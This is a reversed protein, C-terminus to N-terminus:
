GEHRFRLISVGKFEAGTSQTDKPKSKPQQELEDNFKAFPSKILAPRVGTKSKTAPKTVNMQNVTASDRQLNRFHQIVTPTAIIAPRVEFGIGGNLKEKPEESAPQIKNFPLDKEKAIGETTDGFISLRTNLNAKRRSSQNAIRQNGFKSSAFTKGTIKPTAFDQANSTTPALFAVTLALALTIKTTQEIM